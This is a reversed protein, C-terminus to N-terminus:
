YPRAYVWILDAYGFHGGIWPGGCTVLVLRPPGVAGVEAGPDVGDAKPREHIATVQWVSRKRAASWIYVRDGPRLTGIRGLAGDVGSYNIHGLIMATGTAAGLRAGGHWVCTRRPDTSPPDLEGNEAVCIDIPATVALAPIAVRNQAAGGPPQHDDPLRRSPHVVPTPVRGPPHTPTPLPSTTSIRPTTTIRPAPGASCAALSAVGAVALVAM